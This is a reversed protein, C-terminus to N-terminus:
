HPCVRAVAQRAAEGLDGAVTEGSDLLSEVSEIALEIEPPAMQGVSDLAQKAIRNSRQVQAQALRIVEDQVHGAISLHGALWEPLMRQAAGLGAPDDARALSLMSNGIRLYLDVFKSASDIMLTSASFYQELM